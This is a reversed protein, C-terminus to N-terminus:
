GFLIANFDDDASACGGGPNGAGERDALSDHRWGASDGVFWVADIEAESLDALANQLWGECYNQNTPVEWPWHCNMETVAIPLPRPDGNWIAAVMDRWASFGRRCGPRDPHYYDTIPESAWYGNVVQDGYAHVAYGDIGYGSENIYYALAYQYNLWEASPGPMFPVPNLDRNHPAVAGVWIDASHFQFSDRIECARGIIWRVDSPHIAGELQYENGIILNLHPRPGTNWENIAAAIGDFYAQDWAVTMGPRFDLRLYPQVHVGKTWLWDMQYTMRAITQQISHGAYPSQAWAVDVIPITKGAALHWPKNYLAGDPEGFFHVGLNPM